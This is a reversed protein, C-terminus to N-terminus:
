KEEQLCSVKHYGKSLDFHLHNHHRLYGKGELMIILKIILKIILQMILQMIPQQHMILMLKLSLQQFHWVKLEFEQLQLDFRRLKIILILM